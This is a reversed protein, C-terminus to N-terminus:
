GLLDGQQEVAVVEFLGPEPEDLIYVRVGNLVVFNEYQLSVPGHEQSEAATDALLARLDAATRGELEPRPGEGWTADRLDVTMRYSASRVPGAPGVFELHLPQGARKARRALAVNIRALEPDHVPIIVVSSGNPVRKAPDDLGLMGRFFAFSLDVAREDATGLPTPHEPLRARPLREVRLSRIEAPASM